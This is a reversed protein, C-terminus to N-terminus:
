AAEQGTSILWDIAEQASRLIVLKGGRWGDNFEQQNPNLAKGYGKASSKCEVLHTRGRYGVLLDCPQDLRMVTAGAQELANVIERESIDRKAARRM